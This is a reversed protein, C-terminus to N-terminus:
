QATELAPTALGIFECGEADFADFSAQPDSLVSPIEMTEAWWRAMERAAATTAGSLPGFLIYDVELEGLAMADDRTAAGGVGVILKPRLAQVAERTAELDADPVHLGDAGLMKVLGPAGELLVACNKAQAVPIIKKAFDKYANEARAGRPLLLASVEHEELLTQLRDAFPAPEADIPAILFIETM